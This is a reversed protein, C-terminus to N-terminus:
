VWSRTEEIKCTYGHRCGENNGFDGLAKRHMKAVADAQGDHGIHAKRNLRAFADHQTARGADALARQELHDVAVIGDVAALYEDIVVAAQEIERDRIRAGDQRYAARRKTIDALEQAGHRADRGDIDHGFWQSSATDFGGLRLRRRFFHQRTEVQRALEPLQRRGGEGAAVKEPPSCCRTLMARPKM